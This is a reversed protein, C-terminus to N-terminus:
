HMDHSCKEHLCWLLFFILKIIKFIKSDCVTTSQTFNVQLQFEYFKLHGFLKTGVGQIWNRLKQQKGSDVLFFKKGSFQFSHFIYSKFLINVITSNEMVHWHWCNWIMCVYVDFIMNSSEPKQPRIALWWFTMLCWSFAMWSDQFCELTFITWQLTCLM